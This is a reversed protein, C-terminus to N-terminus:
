LRGMENKKIGFKNGCEIGWHRLKYGAFVLGNWQKEMYFSGCKRETDRMTYMFENILRFIDWADSNHPNNTHYSCSSYMFNWFDCDFVHVDAIYFSGYVWNIRFRDFLSRECKFRSLYDVMYRHSDAELTKVEKRLSM